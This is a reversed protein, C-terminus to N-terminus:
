GQIFDSLGKHELEENKTLRLMNEWTKETGYIFFEKLSSIDM